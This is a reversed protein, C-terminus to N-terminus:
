RHHRDGAREVPRLRWLDAPSDLDGGDELDSCDVLQVRHRQASLLDRAGVDDHAAAAAPATWAAAFLVPHSRRLRGEADRHAAATIGDPRHAAIVRAVGAASLGPRDVPTVLVDAEPGAAELGARLSSGMGTSWQGNEVCRVAPLPALAAAVQAAGAGTVAVVEACGGDLLVRVVREVLTTGEFPLLAKPGRGLRTGAGAALVLGVPTM